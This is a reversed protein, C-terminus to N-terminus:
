ALEGIREGLVAALIDVPFESTASEGVGQELECVVTIGMLLNLSLDELPHLLPGVHEAAVGVQADHVVGVVAQLLGVRGELGGGGRLLVAEGIDVALLLVVLQLHGQLQGQLLLLPLLFGGLAGGGGRRGGTRTGGAGRASSRLQVGYGRVRGAGGGGGDGADAGQVVEHGALRTLQLELLAVNDGDELGNVLVPPPAGELPLGADERQVVDLLEGVGGGVLELALGLHLGLDEGFDLIDLLQEGQQAGGVRRRPFFVVLLDRYTM